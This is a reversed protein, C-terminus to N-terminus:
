KWGGGALLERLADRAALFEELETQGVFYVGKYDEDTAELAAQALRREADAVAEAYEAPHTIRGTKTDIM